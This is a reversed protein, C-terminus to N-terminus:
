MNTIKASLHYFHHQTVETTTMGVVEISDESIWAPMIKSLIVLLWFEFEFVLLGGGM